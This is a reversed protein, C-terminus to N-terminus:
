GHFMHVRSLDVGAPVLGVTISTQLGRKAATAM